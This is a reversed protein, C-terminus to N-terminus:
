TQMPAVRPPSQKLYAICIEYGLYARSSRQEHDFCSKGREGATKMETPKVAFLGNRVHSGESVSM